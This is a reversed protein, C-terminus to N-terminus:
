IRCLLRRATGLRLQGEGRAQWGEARMEGGVWKGAWGGLWADQLAKVAACATTCAATPHRQAASRGKQKRRCVSARTAKLM